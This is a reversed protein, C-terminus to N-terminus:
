FEPISDDIYLSSTSTVKELKKEPKIQLLKVANDIDSEFIVFPDKKYNKRFHAIGAESIVVAFFRCFLGWKTPQFQGGKKRLLSVGKNRLLSVGGM